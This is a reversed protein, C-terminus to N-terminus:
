FNKSTEYEEVLRKAVERFDDRGDVYVVPCPLTKAWDEQSALSRMDLGGNDYGAAYEIFKQHTNYMDGGPCIRQGHRHAERKVLRKLRVDTPTKVFVAIDLLSIFPDGWERLCGSMVFNRDIAAWLIDFREEAPNPATFPPNTQKWFYRDIDLHIFGLLGALEKGLTTTGSGSAGFVIVGRPKNM